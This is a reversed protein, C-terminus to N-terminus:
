NIKAASKTSSVIPLDRQDLPTTLFKLIDKKSTWDMNTSPYFITKIGSHNLLSKIEDDLNSGLSSINPHAYLYRLTRKGTLSEFLIRLGRITIQNKSIDLVELSENCKIMEALDQMCDDNLKNNSLALFKLSDNQHLSKFICSAAKSSLQNGNLSNRKNANTFIFPKM